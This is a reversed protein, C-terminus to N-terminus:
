RNPSRIKIQLLESIAEVEMLSLGKLSVSYTKTEPDYFRLTDEKM